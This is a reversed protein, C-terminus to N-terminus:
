IFNTKIIKKEADFSLRLNDKFVGPTFSVNVLDASNKIAPDLILSLLNALEQGKASIAFGGEPVIIKYGSDSIVIAPNTTYDRDTTYYPNVYYTETTPDGNGDTPRMVAYAIRGEADVVIFAEATNSCWSKLSKVNFGKNKWVTLDSNKNVAGVALEGETPVYDEVIQIDLTNNVPDYTFRYFLTADKKGCFFKSVDPDEFYLKTSWDAGPTTKIEGTITTNNFTLPTYETTLEDGYYDLIVRSWLKMEIVFTYCGTERIYNANGSSNATTYFLGTHKVIENCTKTEFTLDESYTYLYTKRPAENNEFLKSFGTQPGFGLIIGKYKVQFYFTHAHGVFYAKTSGKEVLVDFFGTNKKPGGSMIEAIGSSSLDQKIVFEADETGAQANTYATYYEPLQIHTYVVTPIIDYKNNEQTAYIAQLSDIENKYWEIQGPTIAQYEGISYNHEGSDLIIFAGLLKDKTHNYVKISFNGFRNETGPEMYGHEYLLYETKTKVLTESLSAKNFNEADHNGYVWTWPIKYSDMMEIFQILGNTGTGLINDGSCVIFDPKEETILSNIYEKTRDVKDNHWDKGEIGFHIDALQLVKLKKNEPMYVCLGDQEPTPTKETTPETPEVTPTDTVPEETLPDTPVPIETEDKCSGLIFLFSFCLMLFFIKKM